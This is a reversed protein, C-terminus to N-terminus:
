KLKVYFGVSGYLTYTGDGKDNAYVEMDEGIHKELDGMSEVGLIKGVVAQSWGMITTVHKGDVVVDLALKKWSEKM